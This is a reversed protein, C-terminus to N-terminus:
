FRQRSPLPQSAVPGCQGNRFIIIDTLRGTMRDVEVGSSLKIRNTDAGYLDNLRECQRAVMRCWMRSTLDISYFEVGDPLGNVNTMECRLTLPAQSPSQVAGMSFLAAVVVIAKM